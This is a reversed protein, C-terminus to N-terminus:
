KFLVPTLDYTHNPLSISIPGGTGYCSRDTEGTIDRFETPPVFNGAKAHFFSCVAVDCCIFGSRELMHYSLRGAGGKM